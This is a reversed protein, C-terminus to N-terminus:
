TAPARRRAASWPMSRASSSSGTRGNGAAETGTNDLGIINGQIVDGVATIPGVPSILSGVTIGIAQNDSIVNGAGAATGGITNYSSVIYLGNDVNQLFVQDGNGNLAIGFDNGQVVNYDANIPNGQADAETTQIDLGDVQNSVLYNRAALTTGGITNRPASEINVGSHFNGLFTDAFRDTGIFNGQVLNGSAAGGQIHVGSGQNLVLINGAGAATGGVLNGPADQIDIGDFANGFHPNNSFDRNTGVVNGQILNGTAANGEVTIGNGANGSVVNGAGSETGGILNAPANMVLIGAMANPVAKTGAQDIGITNGQVLNGTSKPDHLDVGNGSNGSIVNGAGTGAGGITNGGSDGLSVGDLGNPRATGGDAAIGIFNGLLLNDDGAINVGNGSNSSIVNGAGSATGGITNSSSTNLFIGDGVNGLNGPGLGEGSKTYLTTGIANAQILNGTAFNTADIGIQNSGILNGAGPAGLVNGTGGFICIGPGMNPLSLIGSPFRDIPGPGTGIRDGLVVNGSGTIRIGGALNGSIVDTSGAAAGGITCNSADVEVGYNANGAAQMTPPDVGVFDAQVISGDAGPMVNIGFTGARIVALGQVITGPAAIDLGDSSFGVGQSADITILPTGSYGPQTTADLTVTNSIPPLVSALSITQAGGNGINFDITDPTSDGDASTIAVRLSGPGDDANTTVSYVSLLLRAEFPEVTPRLRRPGSRDLRPRPPKSM